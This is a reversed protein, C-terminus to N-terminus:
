IKINVSVNYALHSDYLKKNLVTEKKSILSLLFIFDKRTYELAKKKNGNMQYYKTLNKYNHRLYFLNNVSENIKVAKEEYFIAENYKNISFCILSMYHYNVELILNDYYLREYINIAKKNLKYAQELNTKYSYLTFAQNTLLNAFKELFLEEYKTFTYSLDITKQAYELAKNEDNLISLYYYMNIFKHKYQYENLDNSNLLATRFLFKVEEIDNNIIKIIALNVYSDTLKTVDNTSRRKSLVKEQIKIALLIDKHRESKCLILAKLEIFDLNHNIRLAKKIYKLAKIYKSILFYNKSMLFYILSIQKTNDEKIYHLSNKYIKISKKYEYLKTYINSTQLYIELSEKDNLLEIRKISELIYKEAYNISLEDKIKEYAMSLKYCIVAIEKIYYVGLSTDEEPKLNNLSSLLEEIFKKNKEVKLNKPFVFNTIDKKM